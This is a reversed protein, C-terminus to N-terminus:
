TGKNSDGGPKSMKSEILLSFIYQITSKGLKVNTVVSKESPHKSRFQLNFFYISIFASLASIIYGSIVAM